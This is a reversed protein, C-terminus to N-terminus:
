FDGEPEPIPGAWLGDPIKEWFGEFFVCLIKTDFPSRVIQTIRTPSNKNRRYWYYGYEKPKEKTWKLM